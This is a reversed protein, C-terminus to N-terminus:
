IGRINLYKEMEYSFSTSIANQPDFPTSSNFRMDGYGETSMYFKYRGTEPAKFWGRVQKTKSVVESNRELIEFSTHVTTPGKLDNV